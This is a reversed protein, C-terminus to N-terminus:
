RRRPRVDLPCEPRATAVRGGIRRLDARAAEPLDRAGACGDDLLLGALWGPALRQQGLRRSRQTVGVRERTMVTAREAVAAALAVDGRCAMEALYGALCAEYEPPPISSPDEGILIQDQGAQARLRSLATETIAERKEAAKDPREPDLIRLQESLETRLESYEVPSLPVVEVARIDAREFRGWDLRTRWLKAGRLDAATTDARVLDAGRLDAHQLDAARLDAGELNAGQLRARELRAGILDVNRALAATLDAGDLRAGALKASSLDAAPLETESFNAGSMDASNLRAGVMSARSFDSNRLEAGTLYAGGLNAESFDVDTGVVSYLTAGSLDARAFNAGTLKANALRAGRLSARGDLEADTLEAGPLMAHDLSVGTLDAGNFNARALSAGDFKAATLDARNFDAGDFIGYRLDRGRLSISRSAGKFREDDVLDASMLVLNRSFPSTLTRQVENRAGEFLVATLCLMRRGRIEIVGLPAENICAGPDDKRGFKTIDAEGDPLIWGEAEEGPITAVFISFLVFVVSIALLSVTANLAAMQQQTTAVAQRSWQWYAVLARSRNPGKLIQKFITQLQARSTTALQRILRFPAGFLDLWAASFTGSPHLVSPWLAWLLVLDAMVAARHWWTMSEAHYPLFRIQCALLLLVPGAVVTVWISFQIAFTQITGTRNGVLMRTFMFPNLRDRIKRRESQLRVHDRLEQDFAFLKRALGELQILLNLHLLLLIAPAYRYFDFLPLEVSLIPLKVPAGLLLQAHTTAGVVILLYAAYSLFTIWATRAAGSAANGAALLKEVHEPARAM